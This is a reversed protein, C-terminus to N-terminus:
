FVDDEDDDWESVLEDDDAYLSDDEDDLADDWDEIEDILDVEEVDAITYTLCGSDPDLEVAAAVCYRDKLYACDEYHCRIRPM